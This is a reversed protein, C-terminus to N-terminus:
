LEGLLIDVENFVEKSDKTGDLHKVIGKREYHNIVPETNKHFEELRKKLSEENDDKRQILEGGCYYEKKYWKDTYSWDKFFWVNCVLLWALLM